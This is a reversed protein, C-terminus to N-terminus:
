LFRQMGEVIRRLETETIITATWVNEGFEDWNSTYIMLKGNHKEVDFARRIVAPQKLLKTENKKSM